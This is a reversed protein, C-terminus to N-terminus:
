ASVLLLVGSGLLDLRCAGWSLLDVQAVEWDEIHRFFELGPEHGLSFTRRGDVLVRTPLHSAGRLAVLFRGSAFCRDVGPLWCPGSWPM